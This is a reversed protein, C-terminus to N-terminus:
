DERHTHHNFLMDNKYAAHIEILATANAEEEIQEDIFWQLLSRPQLENLKEALKVLEVIKSTIHKEHALGADLIEKVSKWDSKPKILELLEVTGGTEIIYEIFKKAHKYEEEAQEYYWHALNNFNHEKLWFSMGLYLYGSELEEKIQMNLAKNFEESILAM